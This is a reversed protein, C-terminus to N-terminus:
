RMQSLHRRPKHLAKLEMLITCAANRIIGTARRVLRWAETAELWSKGDHYKNYAWAFAPITMLKNKSLSFLRQLLVLKLVEGIALVTFGMVVHGTAALYASVPKVPELIIVPVAFLALTPYPRLSIIWARLQDFMRRKAVWDALPKAVTMFVADIVMYTAAIVFLVPKLLHQLTHKM